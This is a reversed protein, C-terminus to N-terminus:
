VPRRAGVHSLVVVGVGLAAIAFGLLGGMGVGSAGWVVGAFFLLLGLGAGVRGLVTLSGSGRGLNAQCHRCRLADTRIEEKCFPCQRVADGVKM